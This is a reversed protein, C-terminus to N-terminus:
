PKLENDSNSDELNSSSDPKEMLHPSSIKWGQYFLVWEGREIQDTGHLIRSVGRRSKLVRGTWSVNTTCISQNGVNAVFLVLTLILAKM